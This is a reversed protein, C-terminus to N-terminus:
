TTIWHFIGVEEIEPFHELFQSVYTMISQEDPPNLMVDSTICWMIKTLSHLHIEFCILAIAISILNIQMLLVTAGFPM